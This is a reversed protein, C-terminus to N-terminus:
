AGGFHRAAEVMEGAFDESVIQEIEAITEDSMTEIKIEIGTDARFVFTTDISVDGFRDPEYDINIKHGKLYAEIM